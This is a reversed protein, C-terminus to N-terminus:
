RVVASALQIFKATRAQEKEEQNHKRTLHLKISTLKETKRESLRNRSKTHFNSVVSWVREIAAAHPNIKSLFFHSNLEKPTPHMVPGGSIWHPKGNQFRRPMLHCKTTLTRYSTQFSALLNQALSTKSSSRRGTM